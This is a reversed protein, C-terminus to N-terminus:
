EESKPFAGPAQIARWLGSQGLAIQRECRWHQVAAVPFQWIGDGTPLREHDVVTLTYSLDAQLLAGTAQDIWVTGKAASINTVRQLTKLIDPPVSASDVAYKDAPRGAVSEQGPSAAGNSAVGLASTPGLSWSVWALADLPNAPQTKGNIVQYNQGGVMYVDTTKFPGNNVSATYVFHVDKGNVDAALTYTTLDVKRAASNWGPDVGKAELHYSPLVPAGKGIGLTNGLSVSILRGVDAPGTPTPNASRGAAQPAVISVAVDLTNGNQYATISTM